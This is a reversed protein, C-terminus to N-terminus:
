TPVLRRLIALEPGHFPSLHWMNNNNNDYTNPLEGHTTLFFFSDHPLASQTESANNM